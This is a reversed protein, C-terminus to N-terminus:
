DHLHIEIRSCATSHYTKQIFDIISRRSTEADPLVVVSAAGHPLCGHLVGEMRIHEFPSMEAPVHLGIGSTYYLTQTRLDNKVMKEAVCSFADLDLMAFRRDIEPVHASAAELRIDLLESWHRCLGCIHRIIRMGLKLAQDSQHMQLGTMAQVCENLGTMGVRYVGRDLHFCPAGDYERVFLALPGLSGMKLVKEVFDRKQCHAKAAVEVTRALAYLLDHETAAAASRMCGYALRPLNLVVEHMVLNDSQWSEGPLEPTQAGGRDFVMHVNGRRAALEAVRELFNEHGEMKFVPPTIRVVPTPAPFSVNGSGGEILVDLLSLAFAQASFVYDGYVASGGSGGPQVAEAKRLGAPTEWYLDLNVAAPNEGHTSTRYAYEFVLMQALQRLARADFTKLFPGFFTNVARWTSPGSFHARLLSSYNVMQALLTDAYKPPKSFTMSGPLGTGFRTVVELSHDASVLRDVQGLHNIAIEGRLHAEAVEESFVQSLAYERKVSEALVFGTAEPNGAKGGIDPGCIIRETDYLPVGLRMHRRLHQNLGHEILKANVLERVLPATLTKANSLFIQQEVEIAIVNAMGEDLGTERVLADV